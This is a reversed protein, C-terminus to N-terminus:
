LAHVFGNVINNYLRSLAEGHEVLVGIYIGFSSLFFAQRGAQM